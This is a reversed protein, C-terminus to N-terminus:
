IRRQSLFVFKRQKLEPFCRLECFSRLESFSHHSIRTRFEAILVLLRGKLISSEPESKAEATKLVNTVDQM